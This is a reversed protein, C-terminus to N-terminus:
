HKLADMGMQWFDAELRSATAFIGTLQAFRQETMSRAALEDLHGRADAAVQQYGQSAYEGIWDVYPRDGM